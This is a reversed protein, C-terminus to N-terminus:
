TVQPIDLLDDVVYLMYNDSSGGGQISRLHAHFVGANCAQLLFAHLILSVRAEPRDGM